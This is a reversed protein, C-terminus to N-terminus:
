RVKCGFWWPGAPRPFSPDAKDVQFKMDNFRYYQGQKFFYTFGNGYQLADDIDDPINWRRILKPYGKSVPPRAEPDFRWYKSGKFFYIKNNGSWVFVADVNDPIGDFGKRILKPYGPDPEMGSFRWYRSGSFFYTKGNNWTFSADVRDPLGPWSDSIKKPYGEAVSDETLRWFKDNKFVFTTDEDLSLISDISSNNCLERNNISKGGRVVNRAEIGDDVDDDHKVGYLAQVATVDDHDLSISSQYGRYFPAMLAQHQDSHSLGLSHGFEHAATQLLNTGAGGGLTWHESNDFHADGGFVPFYAHALTGGSGDFPDGDGHEGDEFRVDIHVPDGGHRREFRLKTVNSWVNLAKRIENDVDSKSLRGRTPYKSIKYLLTDVKWRSGQLAFRKTRRGSGMNKGVVDKVGCRPTKMLQLTRNDLEGTM